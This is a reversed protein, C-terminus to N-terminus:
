NKDKDSIDEGDVIIKTANIDINPPAKVFSVSIFLDEIPVSEGKQPSLLIIEQDKKSKASITIELPSNREPINLPYTEEAGNNLQVVLYYSISPLKVQEADITFTAKNALIEMDVIEFESEIFPKYVLKVNITSEPKLLTATITLPENELGEGIDVDSITSSVQAFTTSALCLVVILLIEYLTCNSNKVKLGELNWQM